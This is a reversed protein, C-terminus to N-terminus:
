TWLPRPHCLEALEVHGGHDPRQLYPINITDRLGQPKVWLQYFETKHFEAEPLVSLQTWAMDVPTHFGGGGSILHLMKELTAAM